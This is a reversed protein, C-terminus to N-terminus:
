GGKYRSEMAVTVPIKSLNGHGHKGPKKAGVIYTDDFEIMGRLLHESDRDETDIRINHWLVWATEYAIGPDLHHQPASGSTTRTAM